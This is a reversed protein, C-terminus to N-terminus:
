AGWFLHDFITKEEPKVPAAEPKKEIPLVKPKEVIVQAPAPKPAPITSPKPEVAKIKSPQGSSALENLLKVSRAQRAFLQMGCEECNLYPKRSKESLRVEQKYESHCLPCVCQGIVEYSM